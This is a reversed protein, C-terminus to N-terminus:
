WPTHATRKTKLNIETGHAAFTWSLPPPKATACGRAHPRLAAKDQHSVSVSRLDKNVSLPLSKMRMEGRGVQPASTAWISLGQFGVKLLYISKRGKMSWCSIDLNEWFRFLPEIVSQRLSCTKRFATPNRPPDTRASRWLVCSVLWVHPWRAATASILACLTISTCRTKSPQQTRCLGEATRPAM